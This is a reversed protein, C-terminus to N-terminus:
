PTQFHAQGVAAKLALTFNLLLTKFDNVEALAKLLHSLELLTIKEQPNNIDKLAGGTLINLIERSKNTGAMDLIKAFRASQSLPNKDDAAAFDGETKITNIIRGLDIAQKISLPKIIIDRECLRIKINEPYLIDIEKM